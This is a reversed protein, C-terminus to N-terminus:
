FPNPFSSTPPPDSLNPFPPLNYQGLMTLQSHHAQRRRPRLPPFMIIDWSTSYPRIELIHISTYINICSTPNYGEM